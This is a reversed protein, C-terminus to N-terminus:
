IKIIMEARCKPCQATHKGKRRPFRIIAKCAPCIVYKKDRDKINGLIVKFRNIVAGKARLYVANEKQRAYINRSLMRFFIVALMALLLIEFLLYVLVSDSFLSVAFRIVAILIYAILLMRSLSDVGYRGYMFRALAMRLKYLM